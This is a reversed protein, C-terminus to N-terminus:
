HVANIPRLYRDITDFVVKENTEFEPGSYIPVWEPILVKPMRFSLSGCFPHQIVLMAWSAPSRSDNVWGCLWNQTIGERALLLAMDFSREQYTAVKRGKSAHDGYVAAQTRWFEAQETDGRQECIQAERRATKEAKEYTEIDTM